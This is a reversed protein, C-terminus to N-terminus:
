PLLSMARRNLERYGKLGEAMRARSKVLAPPDLVVADYRERAGAMRPLADFVDEVHFQARESMGNLEANERAIALAPESGDVFLVSEAGHRLAEIGWAGSYAFLDLVRAGAVRGALLRRNIRQDLFFGTKQGGMPDVHYSLGEVDVTVPPEYAGHWVLTELPLGALKRLAVDNRLVIARPALQEILAAKVLDRRQEMGLTTIQVSLVDNFRDVTLGPLFDGESSILRYSSAGPFLEDRYAAARAIRKHFFAADIEDRSRTLLRVAILSHRNVYGRGLYAGRSDVVDVIAGDPPEGEVADIENSFIWPHGARVRRDQNKKLRLVPHTTTLTSM